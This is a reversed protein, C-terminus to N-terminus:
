APDLYYAWFFCMEDNFSTGFHVSTDTTNDYVCTLRVQQGATITMPPDFLTLPPDSWSTSEHIRTGPVASSTTIDLTADIGLQHTHTTMALVEAGTTLPFLDSVTTMQHPPLNLSMDGTFLIHVERIAPDVPVLDFDVTGRIDLADPTVDIMHLELGIHQHAAMPLGANSPYTLGSEHSEAIFIANGVGHALPPCNLPTTTFPDGGARSVVLHHSGQTIHTRLGRLMMPATNGLDVVICFTQEVGSEVHYPGTLVSLTTSGPVWADPAAPGTDHTVAADRITAADPAASGTDTGTVHESSCATWLLISLALAKRM